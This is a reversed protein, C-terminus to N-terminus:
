GNAVEQAAQAVSATSARRGPLMNALEFPFPLRDALEALEASIWDRDQDFEESGKTLVWGSRNGKRRELVRQAIKTGGMNLTATAIVRNHTVHLVLTASCEEPMGGEFGVNGAGTTAEAGHGTSSDLPSTPTTAAEGNMKQM